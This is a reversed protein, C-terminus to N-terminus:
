SVQLERLTGLVGRLINCAEKGVTALEGSEASTSLLLDRAQSCQDALDRIRCRTPFAPCDCPALPLAISEM